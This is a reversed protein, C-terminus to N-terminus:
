RSGDLLVKLRDPAPTAALAYAANAEHVGLVHTVYGDMMDPRALLYEQAALAAGRRESQPTRGTYLVVDKDMMQAFDIPYHTDDPNGFYMIRGGPAVADVADQLTGVQHGVAEVVVDYRNRNESAWRRGVSTVTDDFGFARGVDSRDIPDVGTVHSVGASRLVQGFLLGIPGLGIVAARTGSLGALRSVGYLVCALPQIPVADLDDFRADVPALAEAGTVAYECLGLSQGVWGVVRTGVGLDSNSAVVDGVIEHLSLGFPGPETATGGDLCRALDSGCIGGTRFRLMVYGDPIVEPRPIEHRVFTLPGELRYAWM